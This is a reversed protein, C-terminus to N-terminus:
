EQPVLWKGGQNAMRLNMDSSSGNGYVIHANLIAANGDQRVSQAPIEIQRVGQKESAFYESSGAKMLLAGKATTEDWWSQRPNYPVFAYRWATEGDGRYLASLYAHAISTIDNGSPSPKISGSYATASVRPQSTTVISVDRSDYVGRDAVEDEAQISPVPPLANNDASFSTNDESDTMSFLEPYEYYDDVTRTESGLSELVVTDNMIDPAQPAQYPATSGCGGLLWMGLALFGYRLATQMLASRSFLRVFYRSNAIPDLIRKVVS